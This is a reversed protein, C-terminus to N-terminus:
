ESLWSSVEKAGYTIILDAGARRIGTLVELLAEKFNLLGAQAGAQLIAFEGSTHYAVLPLTPCAKKVRYIMDLYTHAPKVMLLDAGEREDLLAEGIGQSGNAPDMQYTKRDGFQPAGEAAQRFPGYFASAYKVAYSLIPIPTLSAQDLGYRIAQVMGDMMGSPAIIDAGAQAYSIAQQVLLPLTRDNDVDLIDGRKMLVGCHGHSTYECLCVDAIVMLHPARKKIERIAQQIIGQEEWSASGRDDKHSPIGFLIVGLLNAKLINQIEEELRDPSWQFHGPLSSIPNKINVGAKIFLPQILHRRQLITEQLLHRLTEHYRLRRPRILPLPISM